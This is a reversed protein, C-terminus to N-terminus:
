HCFFLFMGFVDLVCDSRVEELSIVPPFLTTPQQNKNVRVQKVDEMQEYLRDWDSRVIALLLQSSPPLTKTPALTRTSRLNNSTQSRPQLMTDSGNAMLHPTAFTILLAVRCTGVASSNNTKSYSEEDSNNQNQQRQVMIFINRVQVCGCEQCSTVLGMLMAADSRNGGKCCSTCRKPDHMADNITGDFRPANNMDLVLSSVPESKAISDSSVFHAENTEKETSADHCTDVGSVTAAATLRAPRSAGNLVLSCRTCISCESDYGVPTGKQIDKRNCEIPGGNMDVKMWVGAEFITEKTSDPVISVTCDKLFLFGVEDSHSSSEVSRWQDETSTSDKSPPSVDSVIRAFPPTQIKATSTSESEKREQSVNRLGNCESCVSSSSTSICQCQM